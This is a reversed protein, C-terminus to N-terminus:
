KNIMYPNGLTCDPDARFGGGKQPGIVADAIHQGAGVTEPFDPFFGKIVRVQDLHLQIITQGPDTGASKFPGVHGM